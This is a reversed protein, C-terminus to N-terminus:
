TQKTSKRRKVATKGDTKVKPQRYPKISHQSPMIQEETMIIFQCGEFEAQKKAAEWKAQNVLWQKVKEQYSYDTETPRRVPPKTQSKPKVEVMFKKQGDATNAWFCFDLIYRHMRGDVPSRYPIIMEESQWFTISPDSDFRQMMVREWSSRFTVSNVDGIYKEPHECRFKGQVFRTSGFGM